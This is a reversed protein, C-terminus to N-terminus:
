AAAPGPRHGVDLAVLRRAVLGQERDSEPEAGSQSRQHVGQQQPTWDWREGSDAMALAIRTFDDEPLRLRRAHRAIEKATHLVAPSRGLLEGASMGLILEAGRNVRTMRGFADTTIILTQRASELLREMTAASRTAEAATVQQRSISASIPIALYACSMIFLYLLIPNASGPMGAPTGALPGHGTFTLLYAVVSVLMVQLHSSRPSGRNAGWGLVTLILFLTTLPGQPLFVAVSVTLLVVWQVAQEARPGAAVRSGESLIPLVSLQAALASVFSMLTTLAADGLSVELLSLGGGVAACIAAGVATAMLSSPREGVVSDMEFAVTGNRTLLRWVVYSPVVLTAAGVLGLLPPLDYTRSLAVAVVATEAPLAWWLGPREAYVLLGVAFGLAPYGGYERFDLGDLSLPLAIM